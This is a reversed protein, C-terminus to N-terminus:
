VALVSAFGGGPTRFNTTQGQYLRAAALLIRGGYTYLRVDMKRAVAAGDLRVAREGPSAFRQAVYGGRAIETWVGRTVKDGRYVAKSGHGGAPKFFLDKRSQWLLDANEPTVLVTQPIGALKSRLEAPVGLAELAAPDSLLTLNRKDAFLAHNHPNPTMVVAGARYAANLAAHEPRELAFDVLRNYVMGIELDGALLMGQDYRFQSADAIVADLGAKLFLQRALMFEPYLYQEEPHDDVIAIRPIPTDGRQRHWEDRFMRVVEVEFDGVRAAEIAGEIEACCALQARALLANLFAGGANTNIEILKPGDDDLHFDYGMFAGLPGHDERAIEPAWSLVAARYAPLRTAEEIAAAIRGMEAIAESPLFVPVNSFLHPKTQIFSTCFAPDESERELARCLADRDLTICFCSQNLRDASSTSSIRPASIATSSM